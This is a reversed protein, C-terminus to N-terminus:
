VGWGRTWFASEIRCSWAYHEAGGARGWYVPTTAPDSSVVRPQRPSHRALQTMWVYGFLRLKQKIAVITELASAHSIDRRRQGEGM